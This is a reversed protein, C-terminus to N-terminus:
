IAIPAIQAFQTGDKSYVLQSKSLSKIKLHFGYIFTIRLSEPLINQKINIVPKLGM